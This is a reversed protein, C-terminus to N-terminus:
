DLWQARIRSKKRILPHNKTGNIANLLQPHRDIVFKLRREIMQMHQNIYHKHTMNRKDGITKIIM